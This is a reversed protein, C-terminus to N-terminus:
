GMISVKGKTFSALGGTANICQILLLCNHLTPSYIVDKLTVPISKGDIILNLIVTGKGHGKVNMEKGFGSITTNGPTFDQFM